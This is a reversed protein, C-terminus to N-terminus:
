DCSAISVINDSAYIKRSETTNVLMRGNSSFGTKRGRDRSCGGTGAHLINRAQRACDGLIPEVELNGIREAAYGAM